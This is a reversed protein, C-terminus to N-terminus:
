VMAQHTKIFILGDYEDAIRQQGQHCDVAIKNGHDETPEFALPETSNRKRIEWSSFRWMENIRPAEDEGAFLRALNHLFTRTWTNGSKPFSAVWVIGPRPETIATEAEGM